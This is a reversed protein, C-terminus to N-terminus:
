TNGLLIESVMLTASVRVTQWLTVLDLTSFFTDLLRCCPYFLCSFPKCAVLTCSGNGVGLECVFVGQDGVGQGGRGWVHLSERVCGFPMM